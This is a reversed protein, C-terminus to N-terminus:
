ISQSIEVGDVTFDDLSSAVAIVHGEHEFRRVSFHHESIQVRSDNLVLGRSKFVGQGTAKATAELTVWIHTPDLPSGQNQVDLFRLHREQVRGMKEIDVGIPAASLAVVVWEDTHSISFRWPGPYYPQGTSLRHLQSWDMSAGVRAFAQGLLWLAVVRPLSPAGKFYDPALGKFLNAHDALEPQPSVRTYHLIVVSSM